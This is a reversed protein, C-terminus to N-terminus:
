SATVLPWLGDSGAKAIERGLERAWYAENGFEDRWSWLRRTLHHLSYEETFGMAGHVQHAIEAIKGAADGATIKAAATAFAASAREEAVARAASEVAV